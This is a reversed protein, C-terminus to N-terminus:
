TLITPTRAAVIASSIAVTAGQPSPPQVVEAKEHESASSQAAAPPCFPMQSGSPFQLKSSAVHGDPRRYPDCDWADSALVHTGTEPSEEVPPEVVVEPPVVSDVVTVERVVVLPEVVATSGDVVSADAVVPPQVTVRIGSDTAEAATGSATVL